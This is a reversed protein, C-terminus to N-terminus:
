RQPGGAPAPHAAAAADPTATDSAATDSLGASSEPQQTDEEPVRGRLYTRL